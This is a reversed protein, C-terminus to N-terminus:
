KSDLELNALAVWVQDEGQDGTRLELNSNMTAEDYMLRSSLENDDMNRNYEPNNFVVGGIGRVAKSANKKNKKNRAIRKEGESAAVKSALFQVQRLASDGARSSWDSLESNKLTTMKKPIRKFSEISLAVTQQNVSLNAILWLGIAANRSFTALNM